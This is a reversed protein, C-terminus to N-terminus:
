GAGLALHLLIRTKVGCDVIRNKVFHSEALGHKLISWDVPRRVACILCCFSEIQIPAVESVIVGNHYPLWLWCPLLGRMRGALVNRYGVFIFWVNMFSLQVREVFFLINHSTNWQCSLQYFLRRLRILFIWQDVCFWSVNECFIDFHAEGV